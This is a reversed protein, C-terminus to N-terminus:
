PGPSGQQSPPRCRGGGVVAGLRRDDRSGARGRGVKGAFRPRPAMGPLRAQGTGVRAVPEARPPGVRCGRRGVAGPRPALRAGVGEDLFPVPHRWHRGCRALLLPRSPQQPPQGPEATRPRGPQLMVMAGNGAEAEDGDEPHDDDVETGEMGDGNDMGEMEDDEMSEMGDEPEDEPHSGDMAMESMGPFNMPMGTGTVAVDLGDFFDVQFAEYVENSLDPYDESAVPDRGIMFEHPHAGENTAIFRVRQGAEVRITSPSIVNDTLTVHVEGAPTPEAAFM